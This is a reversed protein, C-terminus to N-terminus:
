AASTPSHGLVLRLSQRQRCADPDDALLAFLRRKRSIERDVLEAVERLQKQPMSPVRVLARRLQALEDNVPPQNDSHDLRDEARDEEKGTLAFVLLIFALSIRLWRATDPIAALPTRL